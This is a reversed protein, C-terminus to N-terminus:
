EKNIVVLKSIPNDCDLPFYWELLSFIVLSISTGYKQLSHLITIHAVSTPSTPDWQTTNKHRNWQCRKVSTQLSSCFFIVFHSRVHVAHAPCIEAASM